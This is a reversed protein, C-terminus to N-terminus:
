SPNPVWPRSTRLVRFPILGPLYNVARLIYEPGIINPFAEHLFHMQTGFSAVIEAGGWGGERSPVGFPNKALERGMRAKWERMSEEMAARFGADMFPLARVAVWGDGGIRERVTPLLEELRARYLAGGRTAIVLEVTAKLEEGLLDGRDHQFLSLTRAPAPAGREM